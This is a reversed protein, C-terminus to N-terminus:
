IHILSLTYLTVTGAGANYGLGYLFGNQPRRDISVLTDGISIGTIASPTALSSNPANLDIFALRNSSLLINAPVVAAPTNDNKSQDCGSIGLTLTAAIAISLRNKNMNLKWETSCGKHAFM